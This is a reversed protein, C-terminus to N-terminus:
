LKVGEARMDPTHTEVAEETLAVGGEVEVESGAESLPVSVTSYVSSRSSESYDTSRGSARNTPSPTASGSGSGEGAVAISDIIHRLKPLADGKGKGNAKREEQEEHGFEKAIANRRTSQIRKLPGLDFDSPQGRIDRHTGTRPLPLTINSGESSSERDLALSSADESSKFAGAKSRFLRQFTRKLSKRWPVNSNSFARRLSTSSRRGLKYFRRRGLRAHTATDTSSQTTVVSMDDSAQDSEIIAAEATTEATYFPAPQIPTPMPPIRLGINRMIRADSVPLDSADFPVFQQSLVSEFSTYIRDKFYPRCTHCAHFRCFKLDEYQLSDEAVQQKKNLVSQHAGDTNSPGAESESCRESLGEAAEQLAIVAKLHLKQAKLKELQELTYGGQEANKIASESLGIKELEERLTGKPEVVAGDKAEL